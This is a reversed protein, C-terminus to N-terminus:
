QTLAQHYHSKIPVYVLVLASATEVLAPAMLSAAPANDSGEWLNIRDLMYGHPLHTIM